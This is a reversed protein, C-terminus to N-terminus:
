PAARDVEMEHQRHESAFLAARLTSADKVESYGDENVPAVRVVAHGIWAARLIPEIRANGQNEHPDEGPGLPWGRFPVVLGIPVGKEFSVWMVALWPLAVLSAGHAM